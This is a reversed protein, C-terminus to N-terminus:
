AVQLERLRAGYEEPVERADGFVAPLPPTEGAGVYSELFATLAASAEAIVGEHTEAAVFFDPLEEIRLEWWENGAEDREHTPGVWRWPLGVMQGSTLRLM